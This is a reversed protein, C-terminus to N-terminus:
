TYQLGTVTGSQDLWLRWVMSGKAMQVQFRYLYASNPLQQLSALQIGIVYGRQQLSPVVNQADQWLTKKLLPSLPVNPLKAAQLQEIITQLMKAAAPATIPTEPIDRAILGAQNWGSTVSDERDKRPPHTSSGEASLQEYASIAQQLTGGMRRVAFGAFHDAELELPPRSGVDTLTHGNLHHGVEHAMITWAAWETAAQEDIQKIFDKNYLVYRKQEYIVAAANPVNSAQLVEFNPQLGVSEAVRAVIKAGDEVPDYNSIEANTPTSAEGAANLKRPYFSCSGKLSLTWRVQAFAPAGFAALSLLGAFGKLIRRRKPSPVCAPARDINWEACCQCGFIRRIEM